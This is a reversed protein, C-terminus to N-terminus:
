MVLNLEEQAPTTESASIREGERRRMGSEHGGVHVIDIVESEPSRRRPEHGDGRGNARDPLYANIKLALCLGLSSLPFYEGEM